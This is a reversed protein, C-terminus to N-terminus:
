TQSAAQSRRAECLKATGGVGVGCVWVDVCLVFGMPARSDEVECMCVCV